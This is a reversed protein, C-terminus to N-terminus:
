ALGIRSHLAADTLHEHLPIKMPAKLAGNRLADSSTIIIIRGGLNSLWGYHHIRLLPITTSFPPEGRGTSSARIFSM